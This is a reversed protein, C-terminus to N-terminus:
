VSPEEIATILAIAANADNIVATLQQIRNDKADSITEQFEYNMGVNNTDICVAKPMGSNFEVVSTIYVTHPVENSDTYEYVGIVPFTQLSHDSGIKYFAEPM